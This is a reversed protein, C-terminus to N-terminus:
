FWFMSGCWASPLFVVSDLSFSVCYGSRIRYLECWAWTECSEIRGLEHVDHRAKQHICVYITRVAWPGDRYITWLTWKTWSKPSWRDYCDKMAPPTIWVTPISCASALQPELLISPCPVAFLFSVADQKRGAWGQGVSTATHASTEFWLRSYFHCTFM